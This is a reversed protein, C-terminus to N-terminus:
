RGSFRFFQFVVRGELNTRSDVVLRPDAQRAAQLYSQGYDFLSFEPPHILYLFHPDPLLSVSKGEQINWTLEYLKPGDTLFSLQEHFGWDLSAVGIEDQARIEHAFRELAKSWTGRGGTTSVFHQTMRLARVNGGLLGVVAAVGALRVAQLELARPSQFRWAKAVVAAIILQPFPYTLLLHHIRVAEPLVFFGLTSIVLAALLFLPWGTTKGRADKVAQVVLILIAVALVWGFPTWVGSPADFMKHFLGGVEMLRQFYSGDLVSRVICLKTDLEGARAGLQVALISRFWRACNVWMLAGAILFCVLGALWHGRNVRLSQAVERTRTLLVAIGLAGMFVVFDIKNLFALGFAGGTLALWCPRRKQWWLGACFMGACRFFFSPVFAGWDCVTPFFFAPDVVLLSGALLAETRGRFRHVFLMLLLVGGLGLAVMTFRMVPISAGFVSFAPLLLWCKVAGLYGQVFVPFPKGWLEISQSGPMHQPCHRGELFDRTLHGYLAEDYDLGTDRVTPTALFLAGAALVLWALPVFGRGRFCSDGVRTSM